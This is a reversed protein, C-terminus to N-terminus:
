VSECQLPCGGLVNTVSMGVQIDDGCPERLLSSQSVRIQGTASVSYRICLM